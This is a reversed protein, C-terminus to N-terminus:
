LYGRIRSNHLSSPITTQERISFNCSNLLFAGFRGWVFRCHARAFFRSYTAYDFALPVCAGSASVSVSVSM